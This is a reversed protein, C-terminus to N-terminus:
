NISLIRTAYNNYADLFEQSILYATNPIDVYQQTNISVIKASTGM